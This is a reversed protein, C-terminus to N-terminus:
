PAPWLFAGHELFPEIQEVSQAAKRDVSERTRLAEAEEVFAEYFFVDFM